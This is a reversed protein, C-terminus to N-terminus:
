VNRRQTHSSLMWYFENNENEREDNNNQKEAWITQCIGEGEKSKM